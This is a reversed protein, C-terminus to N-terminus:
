DHTVTVVIKGIHGGTEMYRHADAIETLDFARDVAPTFSGTALGANVFAGARRLREPDSTISHM